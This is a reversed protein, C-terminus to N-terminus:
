SKKRERERGSVTDRGIIAREEKGKKRRRLTDVLIQLIGKKPSLGKKWLGSLTSGVKACVIIFRAMQRMAAAAIADCFPRKQM